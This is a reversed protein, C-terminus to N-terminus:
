GLFAQQLVIEQEVAHMAQSGTAPSGARPRAVCTLERGPPLRDRLKELVFNWAGMNSPEEQVWRVARAAPYRTWLAALDDGAFPYLQELRVIATGDLGHRTRFAILDHAVKGSCLLLRETAAPDAQPDDLLLRFAGSEFDVARSRAAPARLLSKPTMVVLPRARDQRVQRRLLHFYQSATTPMAVTMNRQACLTLFRELRASSHEPGQGEYGHPLLLALRTQQGWKDEASSLFQDVVIQAGNVFDGFQAEWLVLGSGPVVSYGYEFGLVAFESLLSDFVAFRAQTPALHALPAHEAQTEQDILVAHRQSFTGRRSDQGSLRVPTGELLLTGFALAEATAWDVSDSALMRGREELVRALKPHVRLGEPHSSVARLVADLTARPVGTEKSPSADDSVPERPLVPTPARSDQTAAFAAELRARFDVLARDADEERIEGRRVLSETYLLRVPRMERIRAYMLPQTFSPEDSENHGHRRYCFMDVVVDKRFRQRFALAVEIVRVCAEPDNGNVHFIPAQVMRAVDTPYVTSRADVPATTFGIGNNVVVHITGGTRYGKLDSLNLTEAVVGQGAFAADGHVLVPLVRARELDGLLDQRARAMGEVVPDVAELHSPNSALTLSLERGGESVHIGSAGLHYQVDGSGDLSEPDLDGEFRRFMKELPAGLLNARVNLRGRHAMGLVVEAIGAEGARTFLADLMPILTEAGELSFRKHGVYKTHLFREFAEAANLRDLIRRKAADDTWGARDGAEIRERLWAKQDPEQIHMYELGISRCYAEHLTALIERLTMRERGALRGTFFERDLDWVTLGYHEPDLEPHGPAGVALPNVHAILHGRVRYTHILQLVKAEKEVIGAGRGSAAADAVLRVPRLAVGLSAFIGDYFGDEGRLLADLTRLLEGSEAGQIVRHDYTSTVTMVRSVGLDALASPDASRFAAPYDIAGTAVILGQGAMLRPISHATGITGPNTLTVTTGAFDEPALRHARAKGVLDDYADVFERFSMRDAAKLNPVLLGRSGDRRVVDVAIGLNVRPPVVRHPAGDVEAYSVTMAPHRELAKLVAWAVLHTFSVKRGASALDQNAIRRNEELVRVAVERVSTATPVALSREMNEVARAAAGRMAQAGPAALPPSASPSAPPSAPPPAAPAGAPPTFFGRWSEGVSDPFERFQRYKEEILWANPGFSSPDDLASPDSL